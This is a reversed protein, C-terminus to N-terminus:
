RTPRTQRQEQHVLGRCGRRQQRLVDGDGGARCAYEWESESPLRYQQGTKENLKQIFVQIDNWSVSEVPCREGCDKFEPEVGAPCGSGM